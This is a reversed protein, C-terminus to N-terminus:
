MWSSCLVIHAAKVPDSATLDLRTGIFVGPEVPLNSIGKPLMSYMNWHEVAM